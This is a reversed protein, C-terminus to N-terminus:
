GEGENMATAETARPVMGVGVVLGAELGDVM